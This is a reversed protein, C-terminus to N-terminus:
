NLPDMSPKKPIKKKQNKVFQMLQIKIKMSANMPLNKNYYETVLNWKHGRAQSYRESDVDFLKIAEYLIDECIQHKKCKHKRLGESTDFTKNCENCNYHKEGMHEKRKHRALTGSTTFHKGCISCLHLKVGMHIYNIHDELRSKNTFRKKCIKCHFDNVHVIREHRELGIESLFKKSCEPCEFEKKRRRRQHHKESHLDLTSLKAFSKDCKTCTCMKAFKHQTGKHM